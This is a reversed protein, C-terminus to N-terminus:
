RRGALRGVEVTTLFVTYAMLAALIVGHIGDQYGRLAVYRRWFERWPMSLYTWPRPRVGAKVQMGADLKLYRRQKAIFQSWTDYNYHIFPNQLTGAPGDLLVVEHVERAPDYRAWGRRLLRLQPDPYWGGGRIWRGVIYNRRPVWWGVEPREVILRRVEAAQEPTSREDADVFFIWEAVVQELAANRQAAFHVFPHQLVRAGLSRAIAPTEDQSFSDFVVIEDAWRLTEICESIHRREDRTLIVASLTPIAM